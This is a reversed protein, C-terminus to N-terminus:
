QITLTVTTSHNLAGSTGTVTVTYSTPTAGFYGGSGCGSLGAGVGLSLVGLAALL